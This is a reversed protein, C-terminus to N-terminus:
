QRVLEELRRRCVRVLFDASFEEVLEDKPLKEL